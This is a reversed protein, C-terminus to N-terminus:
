ARWFSKVKNGASFIDNTIINFFVCITYLLKTVKEPDVDMDSDHEMNIKQLMEREFEDLATDNLEFDKFLHNYKKFFNFYAHLKDRDVYEEIYYGKYELKRKFSVPILDQSQPLIMNLSHALNSSIM